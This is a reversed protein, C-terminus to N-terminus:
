VSTESPASKILPASKMCKKRALCFAIIILAFILMVVGFCIAILQETDAPKTTHDSVILFLCRHGGYSHTCICSPKDSDQPYMCQGGNECYNAHEARCSRHSRLVEPEEMSSNSLQTTPASNSLAPAATTQPNDTLVASQGAATLLLLVAVASLVAKELQTQRQRFM